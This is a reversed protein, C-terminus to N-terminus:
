TRKSYGIWSVTGLIMSQFRAHFFFLSLVAAGGMVAYRGPSSVLAPCRSIWASVPVLVYPHLVYVPLTRAGFRSLVTERLPCSKLFLTGMVLYLMQFAVRWQLAQLGGGSPSFTVNRTILGPNVGGRWLAFVAGAVLILGLALCHGLRGASTTGEALIWDRVRGLHEDRSISFGLAFFPFFSIMRGVFSVGFTNPRYAAFWSLAFAVVVLSRGPFVKALLPLCLRYVVLALLYWMVIALRFLHLPTGRSLSWVLNGLTNFVLFLAGLRAISTTSPRPSSFWGSLFMFLPMSCGLVSFRAFEKISLPGPCFTIAHAFVVCTMLLTKATDFRSIRNM